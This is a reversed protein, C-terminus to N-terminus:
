YQSISTSYYAPNPLFPLPFRDVAQFYGASILIVLVSGYGGRDMNWGATHLEFGWKEPFDVLDRKGDPFAHVQRGRCSGEYLLNEHKHMREGQPVVM